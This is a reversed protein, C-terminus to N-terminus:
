AVSAAPRLWRRSGSTRTATLSMLLRSGIVSVSGRGITTPSCPVVSAHDGGSAIRVEFDEAIGDIFPQRIAPAAPLPDGRRGGARLRELYEHEQGNLWGGHDRLREIRALQDETFVMPARAPTVWGHIFAEELRRQQDCLDKWREDRDRQDDLGVAQRLSRSPAASPLRDSLARTRRRLLADRSPDCPTKSGVAAVVTLPARRADTASPYPRVSAHTLSM